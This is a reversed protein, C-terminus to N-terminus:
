HGYDDSPPQGPASPRPQAGSRPRLLPVGIVLGLGVAALALAAGGGPVWVLPALGLAVLLPLGLCCVVAIAGATLVGIDLPKENM